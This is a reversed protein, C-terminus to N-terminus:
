PLHVNLQTGWVQCAQCRGDAAHSNDGKKVGCRSGCLFLYWLGQVRLRLVVPISPGQTAVQVSSWAESKCRPRDIKALTGVDHHLQSKSSVEADLVKMESEDEPKQSVGFTGFAVLRVESQM